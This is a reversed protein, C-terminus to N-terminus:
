AEDRSKRALLVRQGVGDTRQAIRPTADIWIGPYREARGIRQVDDAYQCGARAHRRQGTIAHEIAIAYGYRREDRALHLAEFGEVARGFPMGAIYQQAAMHRRGQLHEGSVDAPNSSRTMATAGFMSFASGAANAGAHPLRGYHPCDPQRFTTM